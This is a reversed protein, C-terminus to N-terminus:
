QSNDNTRTDIENRKAIAESLEVTISQRETDGGSLLQHQKTLTDSVYALERAPAKKLKKETIHTIAMRRKDDLMGLFDVIGEQITESEIIQYPNDAQNQSYGAELLLAGLTKTKGKTGFNKILLSILKTQKPTPM